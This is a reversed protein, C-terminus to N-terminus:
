KKDGNKILNPCAETISNPRQAKLFDCSITMSKVMENYSNELALQTNFRAKADDIVGTLWSWREELKQERTKDEKEAKEAKEAEKFTEVYM